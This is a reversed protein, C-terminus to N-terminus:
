NVATCGSWCENGPETYKSHIVPFFFFCFFLHIDWFKCACLPDSLYMRTTYKTFLLVYNCDLWRCLCLNLLKMRQLNIEERWLKKNYRFDFSILCVDYWTKKLKISFLRFWVVDLYSDVAEEAISTDVIFDFLERTTMVAVGRKKFFDQSAGFTQYAWQCQICKKHMRFVIFFIYGIVKAFVYLFMSVIKVYSNMQM